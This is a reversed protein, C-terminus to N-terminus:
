SHFERNKEEISRKRAIEVCRAATAVTAATTAANVEAAGNAEPVVTAASAVITADNAETAANAEWPLWRRHSGVRGFALEWSSEGVQVVLELRWLRLM